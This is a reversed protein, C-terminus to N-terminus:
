AALLVGHKALLTKIDGICRVGTIEAYTFKVKFATELESVLLLANFSDWGPVDSPTLPDQIASIEIGLIKSLIQYLQNM